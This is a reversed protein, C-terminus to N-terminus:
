FEPSKRLDKTESQKRKSKIRKEIAGRPIRTKKRHKEEKFADHLLAFFRETVINKNRLQSRDIDCQLQLVNESNLRNSLKFIVISKQEESLALSKEVNFILIVKSSVKNVNQGGAGSSRVAKYTIERLINDHNM